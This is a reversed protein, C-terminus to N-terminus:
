DTALRLVRGTRGPVAIVAHDDIVPVPETGAGDDIAVPVLRGRDQGSVIVDLSMPDTGPNVAVVLRDADLRREFALAQGAAAIATTSGHRLAPEAARLRLVSRVFSRLEGDWHTEDWPFAGRCDPDNGGRMGIEDGYYISPAGPLTCQLLTAMRLAAVDGGLVTLARPADHSGILNLQVAV